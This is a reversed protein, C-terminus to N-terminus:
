GVRTSCESAVDRRLSSNAARDGVLTPSGTTVDRATSNAPREQITVELQVGSDYSGQLHRWATVSLNGARFSVFSSNVSPHENISWHLTQNSDEETILSVYVTDGAEITGNVTTQASGNPTYFFLAPDSVSRGGLHTLAVVSSNDILSVNFQAIEETTWAPAVANTEGLGEVTYNQEITVTENQDSHTEQASFSHIIGRDSVVVTATINETTSIVPTDGINPEVTENIGTSSYTYLTRNQRTTTEVLEYDLDRLYPQILHSAFSILYQTSNRVNDQGRSYEYMTSTTGHSQSSYNTMTADDTFWYTNSDNEGAIHVESGNAGKDVTVTYERIEFGRLTGNEDSVRGAQEWESREAYSTNRLAARHANVLRTANDIGADSTGPPFESTENPTETKQPTQTATQSQM